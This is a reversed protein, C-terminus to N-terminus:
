QKAAPPPPMSEGAVRPPPPDLLDLKEPSFGSAMLAADLERSKRLGVDRLTRKITKADETTLSAAKYPALVSKVKALEADTLARGPPGGVPKGATASSATARPSLASQGHVAGSALVGLAILIAPLKFLNM